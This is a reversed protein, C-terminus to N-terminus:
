FTKISQVLCSMCHYKMLVPYKHLMCTLIAAHRLFVCLELNQMPFMYDCNVPCNCCFYHLGSLCRVTRVCALRDAFYNWSETARHSTQSHCFTQRHATEVAFACSKSKKLAWLTLCVFASRQSAVLNAQHQKIEHHVPLFYKKKKQFTQVKWM